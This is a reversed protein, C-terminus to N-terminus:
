RRRRQLQIAIAGFTILLGICWAATLALDHSMVQGNTLGRLTTTLQSVPQHAVFPQVWGPFSDVPAMGTSVLILLLQPVMLLQGAGIRHAWTGAADAGLSVALTLVLAVVVFTVTYAFGGTMRFGLVYATAVAAVIAMVSRVLSYIMRATMPALVSIPQTRLRITFGSAQEWAARDAATITGLLVGQVIVAPVIYDAYSMEGTDIVHRLAFNLGLLTLVPAVIGLVLDFDRLAVRVVRETLAVVGTM